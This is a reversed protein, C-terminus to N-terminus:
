RRAMARTEGLWSSLDRGLLEQLELIDERFAERFHAIDAIEMEREAENRARSHFYNKIVDGVPTKKVIEVIFRLGIKELFRQSGPFLIRNYRKRTAKPRHNPDVGLFTFLEVLVQEPAQEIEEYFFIMVQDRPYHAFVRKLHKAYLGLQVLQGKRDFAERFSAGQFHEHLLAYASLARSVPERLVVLLKADPIIEAMRGIALPFDLYNPTFEGVLVDPPAERFVDEYWAVGKEFNEDFFHIEKQEPMFVQPHDKLCMHMWTTGARQAGIGVFRPLM